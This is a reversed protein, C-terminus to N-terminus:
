CIKTNKCIANAKKWSKLNNIPIWVEGEGGPLLHYGIKGEEALVPYVVNEIEQARGSELDILNIIYQYVDPELVSVGTSAYLNIKPKERFKRILHGEIEAIGYPSYTYPVLLVTVLIGFKRNYDHRLLLELPAWKHLILDDPFAFLSRKDKDITGKILANKFAKGKGVKPVDPDYSLKIKIEDYKSAIYNKIYNEIMRTSPKNKKGLLFRFDRFGNSYYLDVFLELLTKGCVKYLPKPADLKSKDIGKEEILYLLELPITRTGSGGVPTVVQIKELEELLLKLKKNVKM